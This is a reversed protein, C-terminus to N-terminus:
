KIRNKSNDLEEKLLTARKITEAIHQKREELAKLESQAKNMENM